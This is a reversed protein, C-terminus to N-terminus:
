RPPLRVTQGRMKMRFSERLTIAQIVQPLIPGLAEDFAAAAIEDFFSPSTQQEADDEGSMHGVRPYSPGLLAAMPDVEVAAESLIRELRARAPSSWPSTQTSLTQRREFEATDLPILARRREVDVLMQLDEVEECLAQERDAHKQRAENARHKLQEADQLARDLRGQLERCVSRLEALELEQDTAM